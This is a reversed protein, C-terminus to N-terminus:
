TPTSRTEPLARAPALAWRHRRHKTPRFAWAKVPFDLRRVGFFAGPTPAVSGHSSPNKLQTVRRGASRAPFPM